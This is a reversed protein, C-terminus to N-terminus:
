EASVVDDKAAKLQEWDRLIDALVYNKGQTVQRLRIHGVYADKGGNAGKRRVGM